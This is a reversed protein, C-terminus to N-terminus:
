LGILARTEAVDKDMQAVLDDASDFKLEDRLRKWFELRLTRGYLDGEFDLLYPEIRHPTSGDEGGFTPNVGINIAAAKREGGVHAVGAYVGIPPRVLRPDAEINATPYGLTRGRQDGRVVTGDIDFPRALLTRADEMDGAEIVRRVRSSTVPEDGVEQLRVGDVDFGLTGGMETLLAVDGKARHGFRWDFGVVVSRAALGTVLVEQVFREPPWQALEHDFPIVAIVELGAEGLLEIKRAPSTILPPTREPRLTENPHRDWTVGVSTAGQKEADEIAKAILTRHGVHVGDFTGITVASGNEPPELADIGVLTKV